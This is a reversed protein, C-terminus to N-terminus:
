LAALSDLSLGSHLGNHANWVTFDFWGQLSMSDKLGLLFGRRYVTVSLLVIKGSLVHWAGHM